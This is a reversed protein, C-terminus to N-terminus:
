KANNGMLMLSEAAGKETGAEGLRRKKSLKNPDSDNSISSSSPESVIPRKKPPRNAKGDVEVSTSSSSPGDASDTLGTADSLEVNKPPVFRLSEDVPEEGDRIPRLCLLLEKIEGKSSPDEDLSQAVSPPFLKAELPGLEEDINEDRLSRTRISSTVECWITTLDDRILCINCAPALPKPRPGNRASSSDDLTDEESQNSERYGSDESANEIGSKRAKKKDIADLMLDSSSSSSQEELSDYRSAKRKRTAEEVASLDARVQLSSLRASANNATVYAGTVDDKHSSKKTPVKGENALKENHWRVNRGLAENAKLLNKADNSSSLSDDSSGQAQARQNASGSGASVDSKIQAADSAEVTGGEKPSAGRQATVDDTKGGGNSASLDSNDEASNPENAFNVVTLPFFGDSVPNIEGSSVEQGSSQGVEADAPKPNGAAAAPVAIEAGLTAAQEAALLEEVLMRLKDRSSPTLIDEFKAGVLHSVKHRLV